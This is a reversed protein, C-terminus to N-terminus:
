IWQPVQVVPVQPQWRMKTTVWRPGQARKEHRVSTLKGTNQKEKRINEKEREQDRLAYQRAELQLVEQPM